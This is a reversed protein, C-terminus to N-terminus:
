KIVGNGNIGLAVRVPKLFDDMEQDIMRLRICRPCLAYLIVHQATPDPGGEEIDWFIGGLLNSEPLKRPLIDEGCDMCTKLSNFDM